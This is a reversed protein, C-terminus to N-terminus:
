SPLEDGPGFFIKKVSGPLPDLSKLYRYVAKLEIEDMRSFAGWPMPSGNHIRGGRFRNIFAIEDWRAMVGDDLHPTLNPTIFSVGPMMPDSDMPMGGTFPAGIFAGTKMDRKTHCGRCNAVSKAIYKGYEVTSDIAVRTPPTGNPGEPKVAGFAMVAKGLFSLETTKIENKVPPQSRLFSIISVVDEDSMNQFPM